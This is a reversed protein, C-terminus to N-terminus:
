TKTENNAPSAIGTEIVSQGDSGLLLLHEVGDRRVLVLRRRPDITLSEVVALRAAKRTAPMTLTLGPVLHGWRRVCYALLGIMGLVLVLSGIYRLITLADM